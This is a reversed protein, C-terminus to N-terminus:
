KQYLFCDGCLQSHASFYANRVDGLSLTKMYGKYDIDHVTGTRNEKYYYYIWNHLGIPSGYKMENLFVHEFGSSGIDGRTRPYMGFWIQKLVDFQSQRDSSM